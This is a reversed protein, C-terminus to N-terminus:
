QKGYCITGDAWDLMINEAEQRTFVDASKSNHTFNSMAELEYRPHERADFCTKKISTYTNM